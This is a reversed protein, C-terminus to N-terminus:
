EDDEDYEDCPERELGELFKRIEVEMLLLSCVVVTYECLYRRRKGLLSARNHPLRKGQNATVTPLHSLSHSSHATSKNSCSAVAEEEGGGGLM